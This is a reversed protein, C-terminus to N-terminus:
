QQPAFAEQWQNVGIGGNPSKGEDGDKPGIAGKGNKRFIQLKEPENLQQWEGKRVALHGPYETNLEQAVQELADESLSGDDTFLTGIDYSTLKLLNRFAPDLDRDLVQQRAQTLSTRLADRESEAERLRTRYKAADRGAKNGSEREEHQQEDHPEAIDPTETAEVEQTTNEESM